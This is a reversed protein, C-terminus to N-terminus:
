KVAQAILEKVQKEMLMNQEEMISAIAAPLVIRFNALSAAELQMAPDSGAQKAANSVVSDAWSQNSVMWANARNIIEEKTFGLM